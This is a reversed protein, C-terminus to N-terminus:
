KKLAEAAAGLINNFQPEVAAKVSAKALKASADRMAQGYKEDIAKQEEETPKPLANMAIKIDDMKKHISEIKPKASDASTKDTVTDLVETLANMQNIM